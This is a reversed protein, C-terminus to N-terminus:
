SWEEIVRVYPPMEQDGQDENILIFALVDFSCAMSGDDFRYKPM